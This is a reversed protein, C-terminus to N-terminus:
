HAVTFVADRLEDLSLPKEFVYDAGMQEAELFGSRDGQSCFAIVPPASPRDCYRRLVELASEGSMALASIIVDPPALEGQESSLLYDSLELGDEVEVVRYGDDRLCRAMLARLGDDEEALLVTATEAWAMDKGM